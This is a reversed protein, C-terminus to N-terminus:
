RAVSLSYGAMSPRLADGRNAIEMVEASFEAAAAAEPATATFLLGDVIDGVVIVRTENQNVARWFVEYSASAPRVATFAPGAITIVLAGDDASPTSLSVQVPGNGESSGGSDCASAGLILAGAVAGVTVRRIANM